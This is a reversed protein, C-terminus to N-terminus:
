GQVVSGSREKLMYVVKDQNYFIGVDGRTKCIDLLDKRFSYLRKKSLRKKSSFFAKYPRNNNKKSITMTFWIEKQVVFLDQISETWVETNAVETELRKRTKFFRM